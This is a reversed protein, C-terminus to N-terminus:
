LLSPTYFRPAGALAIGVFYNGGSAQQDDHASTIALMGLFAVSLWALKQLTVKERLFVAALCLRLPLLIQGLDITSITRKKGFERPEGDLM